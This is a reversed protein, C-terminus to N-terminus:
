ESGATCEAPREKSSSLSSQKLWQRVRRIWSHRYCNVHYMTRVENTWKLTWGERVRGYFEIVKVKGETFFSRFMEQQLLFGPSYDRFQEDYAMKLLILMGDRQLGLQSAVTKGNFKLRFIVGEGVECFNELVDRYFRGQANAESVATGEKGKWGTEELSSYESICEAVCGPERDIVLSCEIKQQELRRRRRLINSVLDKGRTSWYQDFSGAVTVRATKVYSDFESRTVDTHTSFVTYDPDQRTLSLGLAYGPIAQLLDTLQEACCDRNEFLVLGMPAQAPDFTQWFGRRLQTLLILGKRAELSSVGLLVDKNGFYQVLPGVFMSDLLIHNGRSQNVADWLMRHKEFTGCASEFIWGM